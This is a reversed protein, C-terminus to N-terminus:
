SEQTEEQLGNEYLQRFRAVTRELSFNEVIRQRAAQGREARNEAAGMERIAAALANADRPPV